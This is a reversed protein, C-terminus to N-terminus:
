PKTALHLNHTADGWTKGFPMAAAHSDLFLYVGLNGTYRIPDIQTAVSVPDIKGPLRSEEFPHEIFQWWVYTDVPPRDPDKIDTRDTLYIAESPRPISSMSWDYALQENFAFSTYGKDALRDEPSYWVHTDKIYPGYLEGFGHGGGVMFVIMGYGPWAPEIPFRFPLHDDHDALYLASAKGIQSVNELASTRKSAGKAAAFVPFLIAALTAIIAIVVLLEILTFAKKRKM